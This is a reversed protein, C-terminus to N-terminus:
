VWEMDLIFYFVADYHVLSKSGQSKKQWLSPFLLNNINIANSSYKFSTFSWLEVTILLIDLALSVSPLFWTSKPVWEEHSLQIGLAFIFVLSSFQSAFYIVPAIMCCNTWNWSLCCILRHCELIKRCGPVLCCIAWRYQQSPVLSLLCRNVYPCIEVALIVRHKAHCINLGSGLERCLVGLAPFHM